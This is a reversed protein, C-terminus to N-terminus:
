ENKTTVQFWTSLERSSFFGIVCRPLLAVCTTLVCVLYFVPDLMHKQMIWYPNSPPNCTM